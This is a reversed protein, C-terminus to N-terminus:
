SCSLLHCEYENNSINQSEYKIPMETSIKKHIHIEEINKNNMWIINEENTKFNFESDLNNFFKSIHPFFSDGTNKFFTIGNTRSSKKKM